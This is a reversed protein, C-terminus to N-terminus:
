TGAAAPQARWFGDFKRIRASTLDNPPATAVPAGPGDPNRTARPAIVTSTHCGLNM